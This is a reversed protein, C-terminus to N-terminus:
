PSPSSVAPALQGSLDFQQAVEVLARVLPSLPDRESVVLGVAQQAEPAVLPIARLGPFTAGDRGLLELFTHPVVSSWEGSRVHAVLSLVSNTEVAVKPIGAGGAVFLRDIIRRNQMDRTLLCLPLEAAERWTVEPMRDYPARAPTLLMYREGYLPYTRVYRLPENETYTLGGDLSGAELGREIERSTCSLIKLIVFRHRRHFLSTLLPTVPLAAPVVGVRLEGALNGHIEGLEQRLADENALIEQAWGLIRGGEPTLGGFRRGNRDILPVALERELQRIAESLTPQTVNCAAAARGYHGERSLAVFFRLHRINM